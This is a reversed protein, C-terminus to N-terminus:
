CLNEKLISEIRNYLGKDRFYNSVYTRTSLHKKSCLSKILDDDFISTIVEKTLEKQSGDDDNRRMEGVREIITFKIEDLMNKDYKYNEFLSPVFYYMLSIDNVLHKHYLLTNMLEDKHVKHFSEGFDYLKLTNLENEHFTDAYASEPIVFNFRTKLAFLFGRDHFRDETKWVNAAYLLALFQSDDLDTFIRVPASYSLLKKDTIYLLRKYGDILQYKGSKSDVNITIPQAELNQLYEIEGIRNNRTIVANVADDFTKKAVSEPVHTLVSVMDDQYFRIKPTHGYLEVRPDYEVFFWEDIGSYEKYMQYVESFNISTTTNVDVHSPLGTFHDSYCYTYNGLTYNDGFNEKIYSTIYEKASKKIAKKVTDNVNRLSRGFRESANRIDFPLSRNKDVSSRVINELTLDPCDKKCDEFAKDFEADYLSQATKNAEDILFRGYEDEITKIDKLNQETLVSQYTLDIRSKEHFGKLIDLSTLSNEEIIRNRLDSLSIDKMEYNAKVLNSYM